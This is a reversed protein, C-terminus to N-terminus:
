GVAKQYCYKFLLAWEISQVQKCFEELEGKENWAQECLDIFAFADWSTQNLFSKASNPADLKGTKSCLEGFISHAGVKRFWYKANPFDPERRHMIGHWYSGESSPLDQCINHADDQCNHALYLGSVCCEAMSSNKIESSNFLIEADLNKEKFSGSCLPQIELSELQSWTKNGLQDLQLQKLIAIMM